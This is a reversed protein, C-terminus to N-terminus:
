NHMEKSLSQVNDSQLLVFLTWINEVNATFCLEMPLPMFVLLYALINKAQVKCHSLKQRMMYKRMMYMEYNIEENAVENLEEELQLNKEKDDMIIDATGSGM